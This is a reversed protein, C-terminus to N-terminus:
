TQAHVLSLVVSNDVSITIFQSDTNSFKKQESKEEKLASYLLWLCTALNLGTFLYLLTNFRKIIKKEQYLQAVCCFAFYFKWHVLAMREVELLCAQGTNQLIPRSDLTSDSGQNVSMMGVGAEHLM